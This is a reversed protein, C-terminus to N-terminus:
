WRVPLAALGGTLHTTRAPLEDVPVALRLGPLRRPLTAFLTQLELRAVPAGICYHPGHGFTLHTGDTRGPDCAAPRDFTDPDLNADQLDLVVLDGAPITTGDVDIDANAWRPLGPAPGDAVPVPLPLRLIEEVAGAIREPDAALEPHRDLLVVGKDIAAVTTEHGAFLLGAAIMAARDPAFRGTGDDSAAGLESLVDPGPERRKRAVIDRMYAWLAALGDLSRQRDTMDAAADSWRRFDDRDHYPVGLLECIVLVPLPFSVAQHFDAPQDQATLQDLLGDVLDQVRPRLRAMRRASFAPTLLRRLQVHDDHETPSAPLARGFVMSESYRSAHDPDTHTRGLRPDALLRRVTRYGTVRWAPDGAYTTAHHVPM